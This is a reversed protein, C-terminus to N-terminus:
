PTEYLREEDRCYEIYSVWDDLKSWIVDKNNGEYVEWDDGTQDCFQIYHKKGQLKVKGVYCLSHRVDIAGKSTRTFTFVGKIHKTKEYLDDLFLEESKVLKYRKKPPDMVPPIQYKEPEEHNKAFDEILNYIEASYLKSYKRLTDFFLNIKVKHKYEPSRSLSNVIKDYIRTIFKKWTETENGCFFLLYNDVTSKDSFFGLQYQKLLLRTYKRGVGWRCSFTEINSTHEMIYVCDNLVQLLQPIQLEFTLNDIEASTLQSLSQTDPDYESMLDLKDPSVYDIVKRLLIVFVAFSAMSLYVSVIINGGNEESFGFFILVSFIASLYIGIYTGWM